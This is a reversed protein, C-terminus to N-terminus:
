FPSSHRSSRLRPTIIVNAVVHQQLEFPIRFYARGAVNGNGHFVPYHREGSENGAKPLLICGLLCNLTDVPYSPYGIRSQPCCPSTTHCRSSMPRSLHLP